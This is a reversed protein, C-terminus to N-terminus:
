LLEALRSIIRTILILFKSASNTVAMFKTGSEALYNVAGKLRIEKLCTKINDVWKRRTSGLPKKGEPNRM